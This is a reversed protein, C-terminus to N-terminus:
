ERDIAITRREVSEQKPIRLELVGDKLGATIGDANLASGIQISRVFHGARRERRLWQGDEEMSEPRSEANITLVNDAYSLHIDSRKVGPLDTRVVFGRDHEFIDVALVTDEPKQGMESAQGFVKEILNDHEGSFLSVTGFPSVIRSPMSM